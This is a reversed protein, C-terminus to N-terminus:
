VKQQTTVPRGMRARGTSVWLDTSQQGRRHSRLTEYTIHHRLYDGVTTYQTKRVRRELINLVETTLRVSVVKSKNTM